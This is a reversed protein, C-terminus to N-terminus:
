LLEDHEQKYDRNWLGVHIQSILKAKAEEMVDDPLPVERETLASDRLFIRQYKSESVPKWGHRKTARTEKSYKDLVLWIENNREFTTFIWEEAELSPNSKSERRVVIHTNM